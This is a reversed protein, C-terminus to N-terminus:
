KEKDGLAFAALLNSLVASAIDYQAPSLRELRASLEQTDRTSTEGFILADSSVALVKCVKQFSALSIGVTGREIASLSKAGLGVLESFQEQTFGAKERERKINAGIEVNIDKKAKM